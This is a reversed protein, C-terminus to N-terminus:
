FPEPVLEGSPDLDEGITCSDIAAGGLCTLLPYAGGTSGNVPSFGATLNSSQHGIRFRAETHFLQDGSSCSSCNAPCRLPRAKCSHSKNPSPSRAVNSEATNARRSRNSGPPFAMAACSQLCQEWDSLSDTIKNPSQLPGKTKGRYSAPPSSLSVAVHVAAPPAGTSPLELLTQLMWRCHQTISNLILFPLLRFKLLTLLVLSVRGRASGLLRLAWGSGATKRAARVLRFNLWSPLPKVTPVTSSWSM